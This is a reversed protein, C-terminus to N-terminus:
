DEISRKNEPKWKDNNNDKLGELAKRNVWGLKTTEGIVMNESENKNKTEMMFINHEVRLVDNDQAMWDNLLIYAAEM